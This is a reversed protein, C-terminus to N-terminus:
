PTEVVVNTQGQLNGQKAEEDIVDEPHNQYGGRRQVVFWDPNQGLVFSAKCYQSAFPESVLGTSNDLVSIKRLASQDRNHAAELMQTTSNMCAEKVNAGVEAIVSELM